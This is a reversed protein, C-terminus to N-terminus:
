NFGDRLMKVTKLSLLRAAARSNAFSEWQERMRLEAGYFAANAPVFRLSTGAKLDEAPLPSTTLSIALCLAVSAPHTGCLRTPRLSMVIGALLPSSSEQIRVAHGCAMM